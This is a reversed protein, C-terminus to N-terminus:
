RSLCLKNGTATKKCCAVPSGITPCAMMICGATCAQASMSWKVGHPTLRNLTNMLDGDPLRCTLGLVNGSKTVSTAQCDATKYADEKELLEKMSSVKKPAGQLKVYASVTTSQPAEDAWAPLALMLSCLLLKKM